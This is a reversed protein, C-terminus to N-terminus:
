EVCSVNGHLLRHGEISVIRLKVNRNHFRIRRRRLGPDSLVAEVQTSRRGCDTCAADLAVPRAVILLRDGESTVAEVALGARSMAQFSAEGM